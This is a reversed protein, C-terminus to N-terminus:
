PLPEPFATEHLRKWEAMKDADGALYKSMWEGDKKLADIREKAQPASMGGFGNNGGEGVFRHEGVMGGFKAFGKLFAAPGLAREMAQLQEPTWGGARMVRKALDSNKAFDDGKWEGKLANVEQDFRTNWQEDSKAQLAAVHENWKGALAKGASAPIGLEHFWTSATKAFEADHGDPVPIEYGEPKEPAGIKTYFARLDEPKADKGPLRVIQDAPVGLKQEASRGLKIAESLAATPELKDWAKGSVWTKTDADLGAHWETGNPPPANNTVTSNQAEPM